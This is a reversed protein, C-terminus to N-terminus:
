LQPRAARASPVASISAALKPTEMREISDMLRVLASTPQNISYPPRVYPSVREAPVILIREPKEKQRTDEDKFLDDYKTLEISKLRLCRQVMEYWKPTFSCLLMNLNM